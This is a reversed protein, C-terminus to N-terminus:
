PFNIFVQFHACIEVRGSAVDSISARIPLTSGALVDNPVITFKIVYTLGPQVSSNDLDTDIIVLEGTFYTTTVRLHMQSSATSPILDGEALYPTGPNLRCSTGNCTEVRLQTLTGVGGCREYSVVGGLASGVVALLVIALLKMNGSFM